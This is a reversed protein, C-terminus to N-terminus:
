SKGASFMKFVAQLTSPYHALEPECLAIYFSNLNIKAKNFLVRCGPFCRSWGSQDLHNGLGESLYKTAADYSDSTLWVVLEFESRSKRFHQVWNKIFVRLKYPFAPGTWLCHMLSKM